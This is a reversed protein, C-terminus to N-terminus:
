GRDHTRGVPKWTALADLVALGVDDPPVIQVDRSTRGKCEVGGRKLAKAGVTLRVPIGLLDADNFKVGARVDRDDDLVSLGTQVLAQVVQEAVQEVDPNERGLRVLYVDYPAVAPPLALGQEDHHQEALVGMLRHLDLWTRVLVPTRPTGDHALFTLGVREPLATGLTEVRGVELGHPRRLPTGCLACPAGEHAAAIDAVVDPTYDRGVNVNLFHADPENAGSVLNSSHAVLDDVVVITQERRIGIPSAFGPEAGVARIEDETAPRLAHMATAQAVKHPEVDMDGRVLAMVLREDGSQEKRGTFFVVKATRSAPVDLFAALSAITNTGPTAVKQLPRADEAPPTPKRFTAIQRMAVDGCSPCMLLTEDGGPFLAVFAHATGDGVSTPARVSLLASVGVQAYWALWATRWGEARHEAASADAELALLEFGIRVPARLWGWGIRGDADHHTTFHFFCRPIQRYSHVAHRALALLDLLDVPAHTPLAVEAAHWAAAQERLAQELRFRMRRGLPYEALGGERLPRVYGARWLCAYGATEAEAPAERLTQFLLRSLRVHQPHTPKM